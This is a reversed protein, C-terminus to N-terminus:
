STSRGRSNDFRFARKRGWPHDIEVDSGHDPAYVSITRRWFAAARLHRPYTVVEWRGPHRDFGQIAAREAVATGRFAHLVFFEHVVFDCDIAEPFRGRAAVLNFGAPRGDVVILYPFLREPDGWWPDLSEGQQELTSMDEDGVLLGHLNPASGDFESIDHVYLPWMNRIVHATTRDSLRLEVNM